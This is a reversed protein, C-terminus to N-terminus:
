FDTAWLVDEIFSSSLHKFEWKGEHTEREVLTKRVYKPAKNGFAIGFTFIYYGDTCSIYLEYEPYDRRVGGYSGRMMPGDGSPSFEKESPKVHKNLLYLVGQIDELGGKVHQPNFNPLVGYGELYFVPEWKGTSESFLIDTKISASTKM